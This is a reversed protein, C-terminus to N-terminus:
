LIYRYVCGLIFDLAAQSLDVEPPQHKISSANANQIILSFEGSAAQQTDSYPESLAASSEPTLPVASSREKLRSESVYDLPLGTPSNHGPPITARLDQSGDPRDFVSVSIPSSMQPTLSLPLPINHAALLRKLLKNEEM